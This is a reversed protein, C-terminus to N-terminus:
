PSGSVPLFVYGKHVFSSIHAVLLSFGIFGDRGGGKDGGKDGGEGGGEGGIEQLSRKRWQISQPDSHFVLRTEGSGLGM